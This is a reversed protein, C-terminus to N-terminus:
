RSGEAPTDRNSSVTSRPGDTVFEATTAPANCDHGVVHKTLVRVEPEAGANGRAAAVGAADSPDAGGRPPAGRRSRAEDRTCGAAERQMVTASNRRVVTNLDQGACRRPQGLFWKGGILWARDGKDLIV